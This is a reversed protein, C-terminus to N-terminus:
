DDSGADLHTMTLKIGAGTAGTVRFPHALRFGPIWAIENGAIVLPWGQRARRPLRNNIMLDSIKISLGNMGLPKMRDGPLRTRITFPVEAVDADLWATYPDGNEWAQRRAKEGDMEREASLQWGQGCAIKGPIALTQQSDTPTSPWLNGLFSGPPLNAEWAAIWLYEQELFIKLGGALDSQHSRPPASAFTIAHEVVLFDIDRLGPRIHNISWRVLGRQVGTPQARFKQLNFALYGDGQHILSEQVAQEIVGEVITYDDRLTKTMQWLRERLRPQGQELFPLVQHRIANRFFRVDQNSSDQLPVLHNAELYAMVQSRWSGLLPRVLPIRNNWQTPLSRYSMGRLGALGAGRLLHMLVTEIQDDATHAVAVAEAGLREAEAFLFSYRATRAAEEISISGRDALAQVDERGLSFPLGLEAAFHAVFGADEASEPRLQHDLHAVVVPMGLKWLLHLLCLSDPGGSVGLLIKSSIGLDCREQLNFQIDTLM